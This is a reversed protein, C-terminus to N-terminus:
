LFRGAHQCDPWHFSQQAVAMDTIFWHRKTELIDVSWDGGVAAGARSALDRLLPEDTAPLYCLNAYRQEFDAPPNPMGDLLADGPWYPHWCIVEGNRVFCRFERCIPMGNFATMQPITPLMERVAWVNTPLGVFDAMESFEVLNAVHRGLCSIHTIFCSELWSHKASTQGTRLFCPFGMVDCANALEVMFTAWGDPQEGDLLPLLNPARVIITKPVPLGATQLKPFWTSLCNMDTNM